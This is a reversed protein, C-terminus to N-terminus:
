RGRQKTGKNVQGFDAGICVCVCVYVFSKDEMGIPALLYQISLRGPAPPLLSNSQGVLPLM